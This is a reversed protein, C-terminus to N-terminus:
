ASGRLERETVRQGLQRHRCLAEAQAHRGRRLAFALVVHHLCALAHNLKGAGELRARHTHRGKLALREHQHEAQDHDVKHLCGTHGVLVGHRNQHGQTLRDGFM